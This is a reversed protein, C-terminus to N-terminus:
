RFRAMPPFIAALTDEDVESITIVEVERGFLDEWPTCSVNGKVVTMELHYKEGDMTGSKYLGPALIMKVQKEGKDGSNRPEEPDDHVDRMSNDDFISGAINKAKDYEITPFFVSWKAVQTRLLKSFELAPIYVDQLLREALKDKGSLGTLELINNINQQLLALTQSPINACKKTLLSITLSRWQHFDGITVSDGLDIIAREVEKLNRNLPEPIWIDPWSSRQRDNSPTPQFFLTTIQLGIWGQVFERRLETDSFFDLFEKSGQVGPLVSQYAKFNKGVLGQVKSDSCHSHSEIYKSSWAEFTWQKIQALLVQFEKSIVEDPLQGGTPRRRSTNRAEASDQLRESLGQTTQRQMEAQRHLGELDIIVPDLSYERRRRLKGRKAINRDKEARTRRKIRKFLRTSKNFSQRLKAFSSSLYYPCYSRPSEDPIARNVTNKRRPSSAQFNPRENGADYNLHREDTLNPIITTPALKEMM